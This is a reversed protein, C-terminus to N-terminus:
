MYCIITFLVLIFGFNVVLSLKPILDPKGAFFPPKGTKFLLKGIGSFPKGV